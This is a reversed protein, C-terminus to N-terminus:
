WRVMEGGAEQLDFWQQCAEISRERSFSEDRLMVGENRQLDVGTKSGGGVKGGREKGESRERGTSM